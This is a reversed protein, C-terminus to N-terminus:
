PAPLTGIGADAHGQAERTPPEGFRSLAIAGAVALAFGFAAILTGGHAPRDGLFCIGVTAPVITETVVVAATVVTVSGRQLAMAYLLVGLGGALALAYLAPDTFVRWFPHPTRLIRAGIGAAGYMLGSLAGLAWGDTSVAPRLRVMLFAIVGLAAVAILLGSRDLASLKHPTDHHASVGLLALGATVACLAVWERHAPRAGIVIVALVATVALNCAVVAQVTFLPLTRLAVFVLGFGVADLTLGLIYPASRLLKKVLGLDLEDAADGERAGVAQLLTATGYAVAAAFAGILGWHV